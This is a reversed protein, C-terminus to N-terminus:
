QFVVRDKGTQKAQYMNHDARELLSQGNEGLRYQAIGISVTKSVREGPNPEFVEAAFRARIREAVVIAQDGNIEPLIITFEEGGYRCPIDNIRVAGAIVKGLRALVLDGDAHGYTDNHHKFNDIDFLLLCLSHRHRKAREVELAMHKNFYRKNFLGTLEDVTSL